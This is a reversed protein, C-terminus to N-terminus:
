MVVEEPIAPAPERGNDGSDEGSSSAQLIFDYAKLLVAAAKPIDNMGFSGASRWAGNKDKYRRDLTVSFTDIVDGSRLRMKNQWVAASVGGAQFKTTPKVGNTM